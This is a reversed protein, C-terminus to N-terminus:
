GVFDIGRSTYVLVSTRTKLQSGIGLEVLEVRLNAFPDM